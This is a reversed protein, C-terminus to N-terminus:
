KIGKINNLIGNYYYDEQKFIFLPTTDNNIFILYVFDGKKVKRFFDSYVPFDKNYIKSYENLTLYHNKDQYEDDRSLTVEINTIQDLVVKYNKNRIQKIIKKKKNLKILPILNFMLSFLICFIFDCILNFTSLKNIVMFPSLMIIISAVIFIITFIVNTKYGTENELFKENIEIKEKKNM